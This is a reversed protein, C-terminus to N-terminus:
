KGCRAATAPSPFVRDSTRLDSFRRGAATPRSGSGTIAPLAPMRLQIQPRELGRQTHFCQAAARRCHGHFLQTDIQEGVVQNATQHKACSCVRTNRWPLQAELVGHLEPQCPTRDMSGRVLFEIGHQREDRLSTHSLPGAADLRAGYLSSRFGVLQQHLRSVHRSFDNARVTMRHTNLLHWESRVGNDTSCALATVEMRSNQASEGTMPVAHGHLM